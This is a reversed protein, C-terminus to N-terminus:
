HDAEGATAEDSDQAQSRGKWVKFKRKWIEYEKCEDLYPPKQELLITDKEEGKKVQEKLKTRLEEVNTMANIEEETLAEMREEEESAVSSLDLIERDELLDEGSGRELRGRMSRYLDTM